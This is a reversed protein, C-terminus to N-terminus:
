KLYVKKNDKIYIGKRPSSIKRGMLDYYVGNGMQKLTNADEGIADIATTPTTGDESLFVKEINLASSTTTSIGVLYIHSPDITEGKSTTMAHLDICATQETGMDFKYCANLCDDTDYICVKPSYTAAEKLKVVLYKAPSLDIGKSFRWGCLNGSDTAKHEIKDETITSNGQKYISSNFAGEAFPFYGNDYDFDIKKTQGLIKLAVEAYRHGMMRYGEPSFHVNLGDGMYMPCDASSVVYANPVADTIRNIIANHSGCAGGMDTQVVEGCILPVEAENLQLDNLLRTYVRKVRAPWDKQGEDACGQHLLIGKIVGMKQARKACLVLRKYPDNDYPKCWNKFWDQASEIQSATLEQDFLKISAGGVAVNIVGVKIEEPLNAVMDRGFYDLPTLYTDQRCLPPYATYWNGATRKSTTMDVAAMMVFRPDVYEKDVAEIPASGQMNSQGFCLYIHFNPDVGATPDIISTKVNYLSDLLAEFKETRTKLTTIATNMKSEDTVKEPAYLAVYTKLNKFDKRDAMGPFDKWEEVLDYAKQYVEKYEAELAEDIDANASLVCSSFVETFMTAQSTENNAKACVVNLLVFALFILKKM